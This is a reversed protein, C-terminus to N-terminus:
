RSRSGVSAQEGANASWVMEAPRYGLATIRSEFFAREQANIAEARTLVWLYRGGPEGVIAWSYDEARELVWYDAEIPWFFRVKLKGEGNEGVIRAEGRAVHTEGRDDLCSNVVAIRGDNRLTYSATALRCGEEFSNPLRAAEHWLGAYRAPEIRAVPLPDNSTRYVPQGSCASLAIAAATLILRM